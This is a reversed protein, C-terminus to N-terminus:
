LCEVETPTEPIEPIEFDYECNKQVRIDFKGVNRLEVNANNNM